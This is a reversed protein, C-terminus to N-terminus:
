YEVYMCICEGIAPHSDAMPCNVEDLNDSVSENHVNIVHNNAVSDNLHSTITPDPCPLEAVIQCFSAIHRSSESTSHKKCAKDNQM